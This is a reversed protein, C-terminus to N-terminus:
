NIKMKTLELLANEYEEKTLNTFYTKGNDLGVKVLSLDLEDKKTLLLINNPLKNIVEYEENNNMKVIDNIEIKM